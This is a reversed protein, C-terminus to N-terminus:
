LRRGKNRPKNQPIPSPKIEKQAKLQPEMLEVKWDLDFQINFPIPKQQRTYVHLTKALPDAGVLVERGNLIQEPLLDGRM